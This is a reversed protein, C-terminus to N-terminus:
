GALDDGVVLATPGGAERHLVRHLRTVALLREIRPPVDQLVLRRGLRMARRHTAVLVGLGTADVLEVGALSVRLDDVGEDVAMRLAVRVDSVTAASLRGTVRLLAGPVIVDVEARDSPRREPLRPHEEGSM